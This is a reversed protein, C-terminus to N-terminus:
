RGKKTVQTKTPILCKGKQTNKINSTQKTEYIKVRMLLLILM